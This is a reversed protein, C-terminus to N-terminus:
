KTLKNNRYGERYLWQGIGLFHCQYPETECLKMEYHYYNIIIIM